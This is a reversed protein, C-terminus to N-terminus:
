QYEIKYKYANFNNELKELKLESEKYDEISKEYDQFSIYGLKFMKKSKKEESKYYENYRKQIEISEKMDEFSNKQNEREFLKDKELQKIREESIKLEVGNTKIDSKFDFIDKSFSIGYSYDKSDFDYNANATISFNNYKKSFEFQKKGIEYELGNKDIELEGIKNFNINKDFNIKEFKINKKINYNLKYTLKEKFVERNKKLFKIDKESEKIKLLLYSKDSNTSEGKEIKINLTKLQKKYKELIMEDVKIDIDADKIIKYIEIIEIIKQNQELKRSIKYSSNKLEYIKEDQNHKQFIINNLNKNISISNSSIKNNKIDYNLSLVIDKYSLNIISNKSNGIISKGVNGDVKLNLKDLDNYDIEKKEIRMKEDNLLEVKKYEGSKEYISILKKLSVTEASLIQGVIFAMIFIIKKKM